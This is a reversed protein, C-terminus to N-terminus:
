ESRCHLKAEHLRQRKWGVYDQYLNPPLYPILEERKESAKEFVTEFLEENEEQHYRVWGNRDRSRSIWIALFAERKTWRLYDQLLDMEFYRAVEKKNKRIKLETSVPHITKFILRFDPPWNDLVVKEFDYTNQCWILAPEFEEKGSDKYHLCLKFENESSIPKVMKSERDWTLDAKLYRVITSRDLSMPRPKHLASIVFHRLKLSDVRPRDWEQIHDCLLLLFSLPDKSPDIEVEDKLSHMAMARFAETILKMWDHNPTDGIRDELHIQDLYLLHTASVVGHDLKAKMQGFDFKKNLSDTLVKELEDFTEQLNRQFKKICPSSKLFATHSLMHRNIDMCYGVDHLLGALIWNLSTKKCKKYKWTKEGTLKDVFGAEMLVM